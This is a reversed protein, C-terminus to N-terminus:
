AADAAGASATEMRSANVDTTRAEAALKRERRKRRQRRREPGEKDESEGDTEGSSSHREHSRRRRRHVHDDERRHQPHHHHESPREHEHAHAHRSSSSRRRHTPHAREHHRKGPAREKTASNDDDPSSSSSTSTSPSSPPDAPHRHRHSPRRARARPADDSSSATSTGGDQQESSATSTVGGDQNDDEDGGRARARRRQPSKEDEDTAERRRSSHRHRKGPSFMVPVGLADKTIPAPAGVPRRSALARPPGHPAVDPLWAAEPDDVPLRARAAYAQVTASRSREWAAGAGGVAAWVGGEDVSDLENGRLLPAELAAQMARVRRAQAARARQAALESRLIVVRAQPHTSRLDLSVLICLALSAALAISLAAIIHNSRSRLTTLCLSPYSGTSYLSLTLQLAVAFAARFPRVLVQASPPDRRPRRGFARLLRDV